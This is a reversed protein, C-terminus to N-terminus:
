RYKSIEKETGNSIDLAKSDHLCIIYQTISIQEFMHGAM